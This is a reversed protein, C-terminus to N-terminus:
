PQWTLFRLLIEKGFHNSRGNRVSSWVTRMFGLPMGGVFRFRGLEGEGGRAHCAYVSLLKTLVALQAQCRWRWPTNTIPLYRHAAITNCNSPDFVFLHPIKPNTWLLVYIIYIYIYIYPTQLIPPNGFNPSQM